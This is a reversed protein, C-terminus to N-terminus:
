RNYSALFIHKIKNYNLENFSAVAMDAGVELLHQPSTICSRAVVFFGAGKAGIIGEDADELAIFYRLMGYKEKMKEAAKLYLDKKTPLHIGLTHSDFLEYLPKGDLDIKKLIKEANESPSVAGLKVGHAKFDKLLNVADDYKDFRGEEIYQDLFGQKIKKFDEPSIEGLKPFICDKGFENLIAFAGKIGDVGAVELQYFESTFAGKPVGCEEAAFRWCEEHPTQAVTGDIDTIVGVEREFGVAM